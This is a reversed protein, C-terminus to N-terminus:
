SVLGRCQELVSTGLGIGTSQYQAIEADPWQSQYNNSGAISLLLPISRGPIELQHGSGINVPPFVHPTSQAMPVLCRLLAAFTHASAVEQLEAIAAAIVRGIGDTSDAV